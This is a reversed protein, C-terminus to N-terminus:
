ADDIAVFNRSSRGRIAVFLPSSTVQRRFNDGGGGLPVRGPLLAESRRARDSRCGRFAWGPLAAAAERNNRSRNGSRNGPRCSELLAGLEGRPDDHGPLASVTLPRSDLALVTTRVARLTWCPDVAHPSLLNPPTFSGVWLCSAAGRPEFRALPFPVSKTFRAPLGDVPRVLAAHEAVVGLGAREAPSRRRLRWSSSPRHSRGYSGSWSRRWGQLTPRWLRWPSEPWGRCASRRYTCGTHFRRAVPWGWAM